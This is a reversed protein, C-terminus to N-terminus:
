SPCNARKWNGVTNNEKIRFRADTTRSTLLSAVNQNTAKVVTVIKISSKQAMLPITSSIHSIAAALSLDDPRHM